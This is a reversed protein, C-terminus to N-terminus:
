ENRSYDGSLIVRKGDTPRNYLYVWCPLTQGNCQVPIVVRIYEDTAAPPKSIGEYADLRSLIARNKGLDFVTGHVLRSGDPEYTAGPYQGLDFLRGPLTGEGVPRSHQHLYRAYPNTYGPRLTGYVFLYVPDNTM